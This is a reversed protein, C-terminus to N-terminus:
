ERRFSGSAILQRCLNAPYNLLEKVLDVASRDRVFRAVTLAPVKGLSVDIVQEGLTQRM